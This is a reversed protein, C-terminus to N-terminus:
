FAAIHVAAALSTADALWAMAAAYYYRPQGLHAASDVYFDGRAFLPDRIREILAFQEVQNGVGFQAAYLPLLAVLGLFALDRWEIATSVASPSAASVSPGSISAM